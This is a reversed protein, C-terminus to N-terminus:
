GTLLVWHVAPTITKYLSFYVMVAMKLANVREMKLALHRM